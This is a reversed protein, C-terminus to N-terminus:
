RDGRGGGCVWDKWLKRQREKAELEAQRYQLALGSELLNLSWDVVRAIGYHLLDLAINGRPHEM